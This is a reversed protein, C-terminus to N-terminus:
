GMFRSPINTFIGDVGLTEFHQYTKRDDVTYPYIKLGAQHCDQVFAQDIFTYLPHISYADLDCRQIYEWPSILYNKLLVGKKLSPKINQVTKLAQHDFSSIIINDEFGYRELLSVLKQEIGKHFYPINKIEINLLVDKDILALIEALTPIRTGKYESSFWSGADRQKLANLTQEKILGTGDTTRDIHDDHCVVIEQDITLHVDLEIAKCGQQLALQFAPITNEPAEFSAGRHAFITDM